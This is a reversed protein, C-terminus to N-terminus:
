RRRRRAYLVVGSAVVLGTATTNIFSPSFVGQGHEVTISLVDLLTINQGQAAAGGYDVSILAQALLTVDQGQAAASGETGPQTVIFPIEQGEMSAQGVTVPIVYAADFILNVDYPNAAAQAHDVTLSFSSGASLYDAGISIFTEMAQDAGGMVFSPMLTTYTADTLNLETVQTSEAYVRIQGTGPDYEMHLRQGNTLPAVLEHGEVHATTIVGDAGFEVLDLFGGYACLVAYGAGSSNLMAPGRRNYDGDGKMEVSARLTTATATGDVRLRWLIDNGNALPDTNDFSGSRVQVNNTAADIETLGTITYPNTDGIPAANRVYDTNTVTTM